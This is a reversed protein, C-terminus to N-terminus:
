VTGIGHNREHWRTDGQLARNLLRGKYPVSRSVELCRPKPKFSSDFPCCAYACGIDMEWLRKFAEV